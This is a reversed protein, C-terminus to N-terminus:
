IFLASFPSSQVTSRLTAFIQLVPKTRKRFIYNANLIEPMKELRANM